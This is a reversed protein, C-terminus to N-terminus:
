RASGNELVRARRELEEIMFQLARWMVGVTDVEDVTGHRGEDRWVRAFGQLGV